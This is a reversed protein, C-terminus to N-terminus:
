SHLDDTLASTPVANPSPVRVIQLRQLSPTNVLDIELHVVESSLKWTVQFRDSYPNLNPNSNPDAFPPFQALLSRFLSFRALPIHTPQDGVTYLERNGTSTPVGELILVFREAALELLQEALWRLGRDPTNLEAFLEAVPHM